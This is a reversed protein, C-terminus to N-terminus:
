GCPVQTEISCLNCKLNWANIASSAPLPVCHSAPAAELCFIVTANLGLQALVFGCGRSDIGSPTAPSQEPVLRADLDVGRGEDRVANGSGARVLRRHITSEVPVDFYDAIVQELAM